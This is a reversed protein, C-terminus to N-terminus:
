SQVTLGDVDGGNCDLLALLLFLIATGTRVVFAGDFDADTDRVPDTEVDGDTVGEMAGDVAGELEGNLAKLVEMWLDKLFAMGEVSPPAMRRDKRKEM